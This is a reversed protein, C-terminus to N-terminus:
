LQDGKELILILDDLNGKNLVLGPNNEQYFHRDKVLVQYGGPYAMYAVIASRDLAEFQKHSVSLIGYDNQLADISEHLRIKGNHIMWFDDCIAELDSAIHSSILITHNGEEMYEQLIEYIKHRAIVDMGATPEDLILLKPHHSLASVLKMRVQMGTSFQSLPKNFPLDMKKLLKEFYVQDFNKFFAKLVIGIDKASMMTLFGSDAFVVGIEEKLSNPLPWTNQGDLLIKGESPAILGCIMKFTTTKGSGNIGVLGTIQEKPFSVNELDLQFSQYNKKAHDIQIM